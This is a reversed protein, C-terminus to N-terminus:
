RPQRARSVWQLLLATAAGAAAAVLVAKMPDAQVRRATQDRLDSASDRAHAVAARTRDFGRHAMEQAMDHAEKAAHSVANVTQARVDGAQKALTQLATAALDQAHDISRDVRSSLHDFGDSMASVNEPSSPNTSPNM